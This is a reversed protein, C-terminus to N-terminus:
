PMLKLADPGFAGDMEIAVPIVHYTRALESNREETEEAVVGVERTTFFVITWGSFSIM